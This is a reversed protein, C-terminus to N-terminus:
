NVTDESRKWNATGSNEETENKTERSLEMRHKYDMVGVGDSQVVWAGGGGRVEVGLGEAELEVWASMEKAVGGSNWVSWSGQEDGGSPFKSWVIRVKRRAGTLDTRFGDEIIGSMFPLVDTM